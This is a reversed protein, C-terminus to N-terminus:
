LDNEDESDSETTDMNNSNKESIKRLMYQTHYTLMAHLFWNFNGPTMRKLISEFGGLWANLQECAQTNYARQYVIQGDANPVAIVLNPASGDRPAPNCYKQCLFDENSHNTYHYSDVIFQTTKEWVNWMCAKDICIYAPRSEETPFVNNLFTLINTPSEAKAFKTWAIVVGCPACITEICYFRGATFYNKSQNIQPNDQDHAQQPRDTNPSWPLIEGPRRLMRRVGSLSDGTRSNKFKNWERQHNACAQTGTVKPLTCDKIRCKSGHAANHHECFVGGRSNMLDSTCNDYACKQPGIVLGDVVVM